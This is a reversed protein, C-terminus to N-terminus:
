RQNESQSKATQAQASTACLLAIVVSTRLM